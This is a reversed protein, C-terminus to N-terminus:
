LDEQVRNISRESSFGDPYRARLKAINETAITELPVGLAYGAEAIYWLLDGLEKVLKVEDLTHKHFLHKKLHDVVEGAEGALGLGANLLAKNWDEQCEDSITRHAAHEYERFSDIM